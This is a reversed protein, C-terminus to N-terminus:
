REAGDMGNLYQNLLKQGCSIKNSFFKQGGGGEEHIYRSTDCVCTRSQGPKPSDPPSLTQKSTFYSILTNPITKGFVTKSLSTDGEPFAEVDQGM